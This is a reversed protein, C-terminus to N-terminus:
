LLAAFSCVNELKDLSRIVSKIETLQETTKPCYAKSACSDFKAEFSAEDM